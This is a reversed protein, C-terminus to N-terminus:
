SVSLARELHRRMLTAAFAQAGDELATLVALHEECSLMVGEIQLHNFSAFETLRRLGNQNQVAQLIFPNGSCAALFEHFRANIAFFEAADPLPKEGDRWARHIARLRTAEATDLCFGPELLGACEIIMRFRYSDAVATPTELGPTFSWGKGRRRRILGDEALSSLAKLLIGRGVGYRRMLESESADGGIADRARDRLIQERLTDSSLVAPLALSQVLREADDCLFYGKYPQLELAGVGALYKLAGRIPTRSVDLYGALEQETLHDGRILGRSRAYELIQAALDLHLRGASSLMDNTNSM